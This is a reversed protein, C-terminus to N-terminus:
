LQKLHNICPSLSGRPFNILLFASGHQAPSALRIHQERALKETIKFHQSPAHYTQLFKKKLLGLRKSAIRNTNGASIANVKTIQSGNSPVKLRLKNSQSIRVGGFHTPMAFKALRIFSWRKQFYTPLVSKMAVPFMIQM